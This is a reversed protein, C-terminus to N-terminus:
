PQPSDMAVDGMREPPYSRYLWTPLKQSAPRANIWRTFIYQGLDHQRDAIGSLVTNITTAPVVQPPYDAHVNATYSVEADFGCHAMVRGLEHRTYERNHRGYPGYASYQDYINRGEIFHVVNELRAANPTTLILSAGPKLVRKLELLARLPDNTLHEFVECFLMYDFSADAFPLPDTEINVNQYHFDFSEQVGDFGPFVISQKGEKKGINFFNTLTLDLDPRFRRLLLTTFYPGAGIEVLKGRAADPILALTHLFRECDITAYARLEGHASNDVSVATLIDLIRQKSFGEPLPLDPQYDRPDILAEGVVASARRVFRQFM